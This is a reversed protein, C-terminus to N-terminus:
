FYSILILTFRGADTLAYIPSTQGAQDCGVLSSDTRNPSVIAIFSYGKKHGLNVPKGHMVLSGVRTNTRPRISSGIKWFKLHKEGATLVCKADSSFNVSSIASCSSCAKVKTLLKGSRWDWLCIYGDHPYGVSVM